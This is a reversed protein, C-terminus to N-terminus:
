VPNGGGVRSWGGWGGAGEQTKGVGPLGGSGEAPHHPIGLRPNGGNQDEVIRAVTSASPACRLGGQVGGGIRRVACEGTARLYVRPANVHIPAREATRHSRVGGRVM